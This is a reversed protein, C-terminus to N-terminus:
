NFTWFLCIFYVKVQRFASKYVNSGQSTITELREKISMVGKGKKQKKNDSWRVLQMKPNGKRSSSFPKNSSKMKNRASSAKAKSSGVRGRRSPKEDDEEDYAFSRKPPKKIAAKGTPKAAVFNCLLLVLVAYFAISPM